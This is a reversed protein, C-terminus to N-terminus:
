ADQVAREDATSFTILGMDADLHDLLRFDDNPLRSRWQIFAAKVAHDLADGAERRFQEQLRVARASTAPWGYASAVRAELEDLPLTCMDWDTILPKTEFMESQTM